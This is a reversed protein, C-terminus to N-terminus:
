EDSLDQKKSINTARKIVIYLAIAVSLLSCILTFTHYDNPYNEDLKIGGYTGLVIIAIMQFAIGSYRAYSNLQNSQKKNRTSVKISNKSRM